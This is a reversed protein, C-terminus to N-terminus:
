AADAGRADRRLMARAHRHRLLTAHAAGANNATTHGFLHENVARMEGFVKIIDMTSMALGAGNVLCGVNGDLSVYNLGAEKAELEVPDEEDKDQLEKWAKHRFEANDDFNVKGDLAVVDGNKLVALPNIEVLSCDEEVFLKYLSGVLSVFKAVQDKTLAPKREPAKAVIRPQSVM